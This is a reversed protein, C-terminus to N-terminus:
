DVGIARAVYCAFDARSVNDETNDTIDMIGLAELLGEAVALDDNNELKVATQAYSACVSFILLGCIILSIIKKM